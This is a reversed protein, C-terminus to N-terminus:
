KKLITEKKIEVIKGYKKIEEMNINAINGVITMMLPRGSINKKHFNVIDKFSMTKYIELDQKRIDTKYGKKRWSEVVSSVGRFSPSNTNVSQLLNRRINEMREPKEPLKQFMDTMVKVAEHTKDAQTGVFGITMGKENEFFPVSYTGFTTYALSRLERIEQFVLSSMGGGFYKNFAEAHARETLDNTTGEVLMYVQSQLATTDNVLYITNTKNDRRKRSKPSNTKKNVLKFSLNKNLIKEVENFELKGVYHIYQEYTLVTKFAKLLEEGKLQSIESATLRNIFSSKQDYLAYEMLARGITSPDKEEMQVGMAANQSLIPIKTDNVKPKDLFEKLLKVTGEFYKDMGDIHITFYNESCSFYVDGGIKQLDKKYVEFDKTTTGLYSLYDATQKLLPMERSGIGYKLKLSFVDNIPNKTHYFHVLKTIDKFKVDTKQKENIASFTVYKPEENEVKIKELEQVYASTKERSPLESSPKYKPKELKELNPKGMTSYMVLYNKGYYKNAVKVVDEKTIKQVKEAYTLYNDWSQGQLYRYVISITRSQINELGRQFQKNLQIKIAELFENSFEGKKVKEIEALVLKEADELTGMGMVPVAFFMNAGYDNQQMANASAMMLKGDTVLKNIFGTSSANSLINNVVDITIEDPHGNKVTRFGLLAVNIPTLAVQVFERGNFPKEEWKPLAPFKKQKLIGFKKEILPIVKKADFNGSIVLTMNDPVYFTDFYKQMKSLSPKKLHEVSGLVTQQGYPHVKYLNKNFTELAVGFPAEMSINKEEYVVELESQFLRFVPHEFRNAYIDLWKEMQNTPFSNFYVIADHTTFANMNEGGIGEIVKDIENPIAFQNAKDSLESIKKLIKDKEADTKVTAMEDYLKSIKDIFVKEKAYDVTGMKNTGKFFMHELYHAIGTMEKPDRKAGGNVAVAGYVTPQTHDENLYVTLGNKLKFQKVKLADSHQSQSFSAFLFVFLIQLFIKKKM